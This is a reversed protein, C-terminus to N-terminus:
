KKSNWGGKRVLFILKDVIKTQTPLSADLLWMKLHGRFSNSETPPLVFHREDGLHEPLKSPFIIIISLSYGTLSKVNAVPSYCYVSELERLQIKKLRIDASKIAIAWRVSNM